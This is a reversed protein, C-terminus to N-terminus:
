DSYFIKKTDSFHTNNPTNPYIYSGPIVTGTKKVICLITTKHGRGIRFNKLIPKFQKVRTSLGHHFKFPCKAFQLLLFSM